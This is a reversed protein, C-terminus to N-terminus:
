NRDIPHNAWQPDYNSCHEYGLAIATHTPLIECDAQLSQPVVVALHRQAAEDTEFKAICQKNRCLSFTTM